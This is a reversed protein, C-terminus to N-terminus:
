YNDNQFKFINNKITSSFSVDKIYYLFIKLRNIKIKLISTGIQMEKNDSTNLNM